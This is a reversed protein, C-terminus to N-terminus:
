GIVGKYERREIAFQCGGAVSLENLSGLPALLIGVKLGWELGLPAVACKVAVLPTADAPIWFPDANM